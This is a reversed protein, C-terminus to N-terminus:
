LHHKRNEGTVSDCFSYYYKHEIVPIGSNRIFEILEAPDSRYCMTMNVKANVPICRIDEFQIGYWRAMDYVFERMSVNRYLRVAKTWIM